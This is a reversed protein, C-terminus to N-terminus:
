RGRKKKRKNREIAKKKYYAKGIAQCEKNFEAERAARRQERARQEEQEIEEPSKYTCRWLGSWSYHYECKMCCDFCIRAKNLRKCFTWGNYTENTVGCISCSVINGKFTKEAM